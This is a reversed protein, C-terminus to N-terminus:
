GRAEAAFLRTGVRILTAGEEVAIRYDNSMGMSLHVARVFREGRAALADRLERLGRFTGRLVAEEDTFPAMTMLGAVEIALPEGEDRRALEDIAPGVDRPAFGGKSAEGSVNVELLVPFREARGASRARADIELAVKLSDVSHIIGAFDLAAKVKNTQLHGILHWRVALDGLETGKKVLEQVRNEGFDTVGASAAVRVAASGVTKSVAVVTLGERWHPGRLAALEDFLGAIRTRLGDADLAADM